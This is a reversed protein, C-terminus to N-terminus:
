ARRSRIRPIADAVGEYLVSAVLLVDVLLGIARDGVIQRLRRLRTRVRATARALRYTVPRGPPIAWLALREGLRTAMPGLLKGLLTASLAAIVTAASMM